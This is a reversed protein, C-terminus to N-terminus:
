SARLRDLIEELRYKRSAKLLVLDGPRAHARLWEAAEGNGGFRVLRDPAIGADRAGSALDDAFDGGVLVADAVAVAVGGVRRHMAPADDGLEAMSGLVVIRRAAREEAFAQLTALTGSMSANYADYIVDFEGIRDRQYRGPPMDVSAAAKALRELDAGIALAAALAAALNAVNHAGPVTISTRVVRPTGGPQWEIRERGRVVLLPEEVDPLPDSAGIAAFWLVNRLGLAAARARSDGDLANLVPRAGGSLIGFKTAILRERTGMIELHADGINTILAVDPRAAAVLPDIDGFHRCGMEIVAYRTSGPEIRLLTKPVGFENNENADNAVVGPDLTRAILQALFAKATTKGASGTIGVVTAGSEDRVARGALSYAELTDNVILAPLGPPVAAADDVIAAVAGRQAAVATYEHGNHTPGRLALFTDGPVVARSDTVIRLREPLAGSVRGRSLEVLTKSLVSM